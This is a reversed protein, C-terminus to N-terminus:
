TLSNFLQSGSRGATNRHGTMACVATTEGSQGAIMARFFHIKGVARSVSRDDATQSETGRSNANGVQDRCCWAHATPSTDGQGFASSPHSYRDM